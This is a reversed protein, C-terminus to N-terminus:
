FRKFSLLRDTELFSNMNYSLKTSDYTRIMHEIETFPDNDYEVGNFIFYKMFLYKQRLIRNYKAMERLQSGHLVYYNYTEAFDEFPDTMAYRTVFDTVNAGRKRNKEDEWSLRYFKLSIDDNYIPIKGDSFESNGEWRSGTELGTDVVHGMEHVIVSTLEMDNMDSCRIIMTSGGALGRRWEHSNKATFLTLDQLHERHMEPLSVLTKYVLAKCHNLSRDSSQSNKNYTTGPHLRIDLGDLAEAYDYDTSAAHSTYAVGSDGDLNEEFYSQNLVSINQLNISLALAIVIILAYFSFAQRM